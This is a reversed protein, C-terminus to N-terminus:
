DLCNRNSKRSASSSVGLALEGSDLAAALVLSFLMNLSRESRAIVVAVIDILMLVAVMRLLPVIKNSSVSMLAASQSRLM